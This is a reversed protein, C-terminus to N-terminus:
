GKAGNRAGDAKGSPVARPERLVLMPVLSGGRSINVVRDRNTRGLCAIGDPTAMVGVTVYETVVGHHTDLDLFEAQPISVLEQVVWSDPQGMATALREEWEACSVDAGAVVNQGGYARNPKLVLGDKHGRAYAPLDVERGSADLTRRERVLRTWPIVAQHLRRQSPSFYRDFEPSSLVELLSKHDFEGTLASVVQNHQFAHKMADMRGGHKEISIIESLSFDRYIVDILTEKHMLEGKHVELDRPDVTVTQMGLTELYRGVHLMEDAGGTMPERREVFAVTCTARGISRAHAVLLRRLLERPDSGLQYSGPALVHGLAPLIHEEVLQAAVPLFHLCGVGVSNFELIRLVPPWRPDEVLFNTDLREFVTSPQPFGRPALQEFWAREDPSLPLVAQLAADQLYGRLLQNLTRRIRLTLAHLYASQAATLLWPIPHIGVPQVTKADAYVVVHRQTAGDTLKKLAEDRWTAPQEQLAELLKAHWRPARGTPGAARSM